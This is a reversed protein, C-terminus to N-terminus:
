EVPTDTACSQAAPRIIAAASPRDNGERTSAASLQWRASPAASLRYRFRDMRLRHFSLQEGELLLAHPVGPFSYAGTNVITRGDIQKMNARHSHGVVITQATPLYDRAFENVLTTYNWWYHLVKAAAIPRLLMRMATSHSAGAGEFKWEAVAAARAAAFRAEHDGLTLREREFTELFTNRMVRAARSWPALAPHLADGHTVLIRNSALTLVRPGIYPDHNGALLELKTGRVLCVERLRALEIAANERYREHHLEACDGNVILRDCQEALEAFSAASTAGDPRGLHLDSVIITRPEMPSTQLYL